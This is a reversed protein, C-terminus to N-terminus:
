MKKKVYGIIDSVRSAMMAIICEIMGAYVLFVEASGLLPDVQGPMALKTVNM